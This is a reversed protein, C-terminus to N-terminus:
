WGVNVQRMGLREDSSSMGRTYAWAFRDDSNRRSSCSRSRCRNRWNQLKVPILVGSKDIQTLGQTSQSPYWWASSKKEKIVYIENSDGSIRKEEM